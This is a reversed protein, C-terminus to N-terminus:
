SLPCSSLYSCNLCMIVAQRTRQVGKSTLKPVHLSLLMWRSAALALMEMCNTRLLLLHLCFYHELLIEISKIDPMLSDPTPVVEFFLIGFINIMYIVEQNFLEYSLLSNIESNDRRDQSHPPCTSITGQLLTPTMWKLFLSSPTDWIENLVYMLYTTTCYRRSLFFFFGYHTSPEESHIRFLM